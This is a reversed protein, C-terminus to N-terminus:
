RAGVEIRTWLMEGAAQDHISIVVRHRLRRMELATEYISYAGPPPGEPLTFSVPVVEIENRYGNKDEVAVRLELRAHWGDSQPLFTVQDLPIFIEIPLQMKRFGAGAPEGVEVRLAKPGEPPEGFLLASEALMTVETKLSLDSFSRRARVELEPDRLELRVSHRLDARRLSPTFGLWYYSRTDGLAQEFALRNASNIFAQGGTQEALQLLTAHEGWERDISNQVAARAQGASRHEASPGSVRFGRLDVPYLTFGLRNATDFLSRYLFPGYGLRRAYDPIGFVGSGVPSQPWGGALLLMARRGSARAFSRMATEAALIVDRIRNRLQRARSEVEARSAAGRPAKRLFVERQLGRTPRSKAEELTAALREADGSWGSLMELKRGTFAVVAMRDEAGIEPLQEILRDLAPDRDRKLAFSEDIFVLFSTGVRRETTVGPAHRTTGGGAPEIAEGQRVETFFEIEVERGDVVLRFDEPGLGHVRAGDRDTVVAELNVVRVDITEGFTPPDEQAPLASGSLLCASVAAALPLTGPPIKM